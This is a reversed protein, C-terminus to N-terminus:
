DELQFGISFSRKVSRGNVKDTYYCTGYVFPLSTTLPVVTDPLGCGGCDEWGPVIVAKFMVTKTANAFTVMTKGTVLGTPKRVKLSFGRLARTLDISSATVVLPEGDALIARVAGYSASDSFASLDYAVELADSGCCDVLSASPNYYSGYVGLRRTFSYGAQNHVWTSAIGGQGLIARQTPANAGNPRIKVAIKVLNQGSKKVVSLRAWGDEALELYSSSTMTKGDPLLIKCKVRGTRRTQASTADIVMYGTGSPYADKKGLGDVPLAVTYYGVFRPYTATVLSVGSSLTTSGDVLEASIAGNAKMTLKVAVGGKALTAKTVGYFDVAGWEGRLTTKRQTSADTYKVTIRGKATTSVALTGALATGAANCVSLTAVVKKQVYPNSTPEKQEESKFTVTTTTGTTGYKESSANAYSQIKLYYTGDSPIAYSFSDTTFSAVPEGRTVYATAKTAGSADKEAVSIKAAKLLTITVGKGSTDGTKTVIIKKGNFGSLKYVAANECVSLKVSTTAGLTHTLTTTSAFKDSERVVDADVLNIFEALRALNEVKDSPYAGNADKTTTTNYQGVYRGVEYGDSDLLILTPYGTRLAEPQCFLGGYYGLEHNVQLQIAAEEPSIGKRSMYAAGSAGNAGVAYSLLSPAGGNAVTSVAYPSASTSDNASRKLNDVIALALENEKAWNRFETTDFVYNELGLCWPCWLSGTFFVLTGRGRAGIGLAAELDMTWEGFGVDEGYWAPNRTSNAPESVAYVTSTSRVKGGADKLTLTLNASSYNGVDVAIYKTAKSNAPWVVPRSTAGCVLTNTYAVNTANTRVLPVVVETTKNKIMELRAKATGPVLFDGGAYASVVPPTPEPDPASGDSWSGVNTNLSNVLQQSENSGSGGDTIKGKRGVFGVSVTTGDAKPWYIRMFPFDTNSGRTFERVTTASGVQSEPVDVFVYVIKHSAMWSLFPEVTLGRNIMRDCYGCGQSGWFVLMPVHNKDSYSKAAAFDSTWVGPTCGSTTYTIGKTTAAVATMTLAVGLLAAGIKRINSPM